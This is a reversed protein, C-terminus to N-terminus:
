EYYVPELTDYYVPTDTDYLVATFTPGVPPTFEGLPIASWPSLSFGAGQLAWLKNGPSSRWPM